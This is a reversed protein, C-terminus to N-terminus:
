TPECTVFWSGIGLLKLMQDQLNPDYKTRRPQNHKKVTLVWGKPGIIQWIDDNLQM